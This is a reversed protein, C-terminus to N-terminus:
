ESQGSDNVNVEDAEEEEIIVGCQRAREAQEQIYSAEATGSCDRKTRALVVLSEQLQPHNDSQPMGYHERSRTTVESPIGIRQEESHLFPLHSCKLTM